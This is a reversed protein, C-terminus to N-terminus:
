AFQTLNTKAKLPVLPGAEMVNVVAWFLNETYM